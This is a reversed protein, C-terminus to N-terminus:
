ADTKVKPPRGRRPKEDEQPEVKEVAPKIASLVAKGRSLWHKASSVSVAIEQGKEYCTAKSTGRNEDQVEVATLFKIKQM